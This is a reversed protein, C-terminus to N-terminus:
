DRIFLKMGEHTASFGLQEYFQRAERRKKDTMLEIRSCGLAKAREIAWQFMKTGYGKNRQDKQIRVGAIEARKSGQFTLHTSYSMQMVGIVNQNLEAVILESNPDANIKVFAQLYSPSIPRANNERKEGLQDDQLLDVITELDNLCAKRFVLLHKAAEAPRDYTNKWQELNLATLVHDEWQHNIRIYNKAYGEIVFGLRNLLRASRINVPMYNAMIRHLKLEEFMYKISAQLAEFMLGKGEYGFDIKYGLFCAQFAGRIIPSFNCMGILQYPHKNLFIFFRASEGAECETNWAMLRRRYGEDTLKELLPEWKALHVQNRADFEKLAILDEVQPNQLILHPTFIQM